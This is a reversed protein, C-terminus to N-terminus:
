TKPQQAMKQKFRRIWTFQILYLVLLGAFGGFLFWSQVWINILLLFVAFFITQYQSIKLTYIQNIVLKGSLFEPHKLSLKYTFINQLHRTIIFTYLIFIAGYFFDFLTVRMLNSALYFYLTILCVALIHKYNFMKLKNIDKQWVPNLEYEESTFYKFYEKDRLKKGIITLYYDSLM